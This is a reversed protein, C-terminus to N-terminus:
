RGTSGFGGEGRETQSLEEVEVFEVAPCPLIVLQGIRDGKHYIYEEAYAENVSCLDITRYVFCVEGRYDSDIVGVSNALQQRKKYCSSRPFLLGVYGKPIEVAIGTHLRVFQVTPSTLCEGETMTLDWGVSGDTARTPTVADPHLKCFKIKKVLSKLIDDYINKYIKKSLSEVERKLWDETSM